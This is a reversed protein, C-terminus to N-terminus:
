KQSRHGGTASSTEGQMSGATVRRTRIWQPVFLVGGIALVSAIIPGSAGLKHALFVSLPVNVALMLLHLWAQFRLGKRDTLLMAMPYSISQLLLLGGFSIFVGFSVNISGGSVMKSLVPGAALLALALAFGLSGFAIQARVLRKRSVGGGSDQRSRAFVPWLAVGATSVLGLLPSFVQFAVSYAAVESLSSVHGLVIRDTQFALPVIVSIAFMPGAVHRVRAGRVKPRLAQRLISLLGINFRKDAMALALANGIAMGAFPASFFLAPSEATISALAVGGLMLVAGLAQCLVAAHTLGGGILLRPGISLPLSLAFVVLATAVGTEIASGEPLGLIPAWLGVSAFGLAFGVVLTSMAFLTRWSTVLVGDIPDASPQGRRAMADMIAAGTGLDAFPIILAIGAVISYAAYGEVGLSSIVLRAAALWALAVLPSVAVKVGLSRASAGLDGGALSRARGLQSLADGPNDGQGPNWVM